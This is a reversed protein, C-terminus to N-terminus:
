FGMARRALLQKLPGLHNVADIGFNRLGDWGAARLGFARNLGDTVALMDLNDAMRAREYRRLLRLSGPDRGEVLAAIIERALVAGDALGLNVGQGALPHVVHAADGILALRPRVYERAHLLRLPYAVRRTCDLVAGLEFQVAAALRERFGSEDLALLEDATRSSWVISSRGDALPLFALPGEPLFRQFATGRHPKETTVHCVVARQPYDWRVCDIGAWERLQSEAGDAAVVLRAGIVRGDALELQAADDDLQCATIRAQRYVAEEGLTRWLVDLILSNEIIYGLREVGSAAADFVLAHSPERDWVRMCQYPSIRTEAIGQWAGVSELLAASAASIAYVRLDYDRADYAAPGAGSEVLAADLGARRLALALTAGPIGGGVVVVDHKIETASM